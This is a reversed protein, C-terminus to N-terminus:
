VLRWSQALSATQHGSGILPQVTRARDIPGRSYFDVPEGQRNAARFVPSFPPTM